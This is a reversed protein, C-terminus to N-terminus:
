WMEARPVWKRTKQIKEFQEVELRYRKLTWEGENFEAAWRWMRRAKAIRMDLGVTWAAEEARYAAISWGLTITLFVAVAFRLRWKGAVGRTFIWGFFAAVASGLASYLVFNGAVSFPFCGPTQLYFEYDPAYWLGGSLTHIAPIGYLVGIVFQFWFGAWLLCCIFTVQM